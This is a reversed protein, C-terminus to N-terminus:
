ELTLYINTYFLVNRIIVESDSSLREISMEVPISHEPSSIFDHPITEQQFFVSNSHSTIQQFDIHNKM